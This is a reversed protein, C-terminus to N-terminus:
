PLQAVTGEVLCTSGAVHSHAGGVRDRVATLVESDGTPTSALVQRGARVAPHDFTHRVLQRRLELPLAPSSTWFELVVWRERDRVRAEAVLGEPTTVTVGGASTQVEWRHGQRSEGRMRRPFTGVPERQVPIRHRPGDETTPSRRVRPDAPLVQHM